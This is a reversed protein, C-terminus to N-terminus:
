DSSINCVAQQRYLGQEIFKIFCGLKAWKRPLFFIEYANGAMWMVIYTFVILTGLYVLLATHEMPALSFQQVGHWLSSAAVSAYIATFITLVTQAAWNRKNRWKEQDLRASDLVLKWADFGIAYEKTIAEFVSRNITKEFADIKRQLPRDWALRMFFMSIFSALMLVVSVMTVTMEEMAISMCLGLLSFVLLFFVVLLARTLIREKRKLETKSNTWEADATREWITLLQDYVEMGPFRERMVNVSRQVKGFGNHWCLQRARTKNNFYCSLITFM